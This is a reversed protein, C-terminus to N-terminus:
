KLVKYIFNWRSMLFEIFWFGDVIILLKIMRVVICEGKIFVVIM